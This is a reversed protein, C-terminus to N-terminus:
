RGNYDEIYYLLIIQFRRWGVFFIIFDRFKFIKKYWRYKKIRMQFCLCEIFCFICGFLGDGIKCCFVGVQVYGVIGESNGLGGLIILYYLDFNQVFECFINEIEIRVYM